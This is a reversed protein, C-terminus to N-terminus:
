GRAPAAVRQNKREEQAKCHDVRRKGHAACYPSRYWLQDPRPGWPSLGAKPRLLQVVSEGRIEFLQLWQDRVTPCM